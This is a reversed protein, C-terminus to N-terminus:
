RAQSSGEPCSVRIGGLRQEVAMPDRGLRTGPVPAATFAKHSEVKGGFGVEDLLGGVADDAEEGVTRGPHATRRLGQRPPGPESLVFCRPPSAATPRQVCDAASGLIQFFLRGVATATDIGQDIVVLDVGRTRLLKSLEILHELSRGLRDLKTIVLQDGARDASKVPYRCLAQAHM